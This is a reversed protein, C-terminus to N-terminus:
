CFASKHMSKAGSKHSRLLLENNWRHGPQHLLLCPVPFRSAKAVGKSTQFTERERECLSSPCHIGSCQLLTKVKNDEFEQEEVNTEYEQM